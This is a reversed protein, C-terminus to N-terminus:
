LLSKVMLLDIIVSDKIQYSGCQYYNTVVSNSDNKNFSEIACFSEGRPIQSVRFKFSIFCYTAFDFRLVSVNPYELPNIPQCQLTAVLNSIINIAYNRSVNGQVLAKIYLTKIFEDAFTQIDEFTITSAVM